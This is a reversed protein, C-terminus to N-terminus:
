MPIQDLEELKWYKKMNEAGLDQVKVAVAFYKNALSRSRADHRKGGSGPARLSGNELQRSLGEDRKSQINDFGQEM